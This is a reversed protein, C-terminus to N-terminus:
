KRKSVYADKQIDKRLNSKVLVSQDRRGKEPASCM